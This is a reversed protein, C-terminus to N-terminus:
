EEVYIVKGPLIPDIRYIAVRKWQFAGHEEKVAWFDYNGFKRDGAENLFTWGTIGTYHKAEERLATKLADPTKRGTALYAKTTIWLVDYAVLSYINPDRKIGRRIQEKILKSKEAMVESVIPNPFGTRVAFQAAQENSILVKNVATGDSGYWKVTSLVPYKQAQTFIHEVEKFAILHVAVSDVGYQAIAQSVKSNLSELEASFDKPTPSYRIGDVVTGGLEEFSSRTAKSLDNGWADGRWIAIVARCGEEWMLRAIAEAQHTDDPVFRFVNDGPIALSPATSSYSIILIGNEDAYEKVAEVEASSSPGIVVRVGEEALEGLKELAVQPNTKTDEVIL